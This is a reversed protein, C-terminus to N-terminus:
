EEYNGGKTAIQVLDDFPIILPEEEPYDEPYGQDQPVQDYSQQGYEMQDQATNAFTQDPTANINKNRLEDAQPSNLPKFSIIQRFENSSMIENRTFKDAMDALKGIPVLKFPDRFFKIAQHQSRATKTLFKLEIAETIATIIPVITRSYYNTMQEDNATGNLIEETIGLQSYLLKTLYEIQELLGNDIPRNLQIVKETADIYGIGYKSEAMQKELDAKREDAQQKRLKGKITYPVQFLLNLKSSATSEDVSDLLVLKHSLRKLTSNPENMVYYFPNEVIATTRKPLLIEEHTGKKDDWLRVRVSDPLYELIKGVRMAYVDFADNYYINKTTDTPVIAIDGEDLLSIVADIIFQRSTQDKNAEYTLCYNLKSDVEGIYRDNDDLRVHKIDLDSCDVAIRNYITTIITREGGSLFIHRDPRISHSPGNDTYGAPHDRGFFVSWSKKFRDVISM